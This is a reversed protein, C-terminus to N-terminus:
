TLSFNNTVLNMLHNEAWQMASQRAHHNHNLKPNKYSWEMSNWFIRSCEIYDDSNGIRKVNIFCSQDSGHSNTILHYALQNGVFGKGDIEWRIHSNDPYIKSNNFTLKNKINMNKSYPSNTVFM